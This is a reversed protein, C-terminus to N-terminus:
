LQRPKEPKWELLLYVERDEIQRFGLREYWRLAPNFREVHIRVPLASAAAEDLLGNLLCSGIGARCHAPLLSIDIIRIENDCRHVYLRGVPRDELLVIEFTADAFRAQYYIQQAKFQMRLFAEKQAEDWALVALEAERTSAYLLFLFPEDGPQVPRLAVPPANPKMDGAPSSCPM